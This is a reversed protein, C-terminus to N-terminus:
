LGRLVNIIKDAKQFRNEIVEWKLEKMMATVDCGKAICHGHGRHTSAIYDKDSLQMMVATASAEEGAYLHVSGEINGKEVEKIAKEEFDRITNMVKYAKLLEERKLQM